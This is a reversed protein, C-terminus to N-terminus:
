HSCSTAATATTATTAATAATTAASERQQALVAQDRELVALAGGLRGIQLNFTAARKFDGDQM